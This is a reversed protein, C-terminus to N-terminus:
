EEEKSLSYESLLKNVKDMNSKDESGIFKQSVFTLLIEYEDDNSVKGTALIKLVNTNNEKEVAMLIANISKKGDPTLTEAWESLDKLIRVLGKKDNNTYTRKVVNSFDDMMEGGGKEKIFKILEDCQIKIIDIDLNM